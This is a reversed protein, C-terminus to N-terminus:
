GTGGENSNAQFIRTFYGSSDCIIFNGDRYISGKFPEALSAPLPKDILEPDFRCDGSRKGLEALLRKFDYPLKQNYIYEQMQVHSRAQKHHALHTHLACQIVRQCWRTIPDIDRATPDTWLVPNKEDFESLENSLNEEASRDTVCLYKTLCTRLYGIKDGQVDRQLHSLENLVALPSDSTYFIEELYQAQLSYDGNKRSADLGLKLLNEPTRQSQKEWFVRYPQDIPDFPVYIPLSCTWVFVGQPRKLYEYKPMQCLNVPFERSLRQNALVWRLYPSTQVNEPNSLSLSIALQSAHFMAENITKKIYDVTQGGHSLLQMSITVLLDLLALDTSEDGQSSHTWHSIFDFWTNFEPVELKHIESPIAKKMDKFLLKVTDAVGYRSCLAHFLDRFDWISNTSLLHEYLGHWNLSSDVIVESEKFADNPIKTYKEIESDLQAKKCLLQVQISDLKGFNSLLESRVEDARWDKVVASKSFGLNHWKGLEFVSRMYHIPIIGCDRLQELLFGEKNAAFNVLTEYAGQKLLTDIFDLVFEPHDKLETLCSDFLHKATNFKGKRALRSLEEVYAELDYECDFTIEMSETSGPTGTSHGDADKSLTMFRLDYLKFENEPDSEQQTSEAFKDESDVTESGVARSSDSHGDDGHSLTESM